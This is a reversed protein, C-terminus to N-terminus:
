GHHGNIKWTVSSFITIYPILAISKHGKGPLVCCLLLSFILKKNVYDEYRNSTSALKMVMTCSNREPREGSCTLWKWFAFFLAGLISSINSEMINLLNNFQDGWWQSYHRYRNSFLAYDSCLRKAHLMVFCNIWVFHSM